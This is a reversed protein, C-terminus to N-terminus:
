EDFDDISTVARGKSMRLQPTTKGRFENVDLLCDCVFLQKPNTQAAQKVQLAFKTDFTLASMGNLNFKISKGSWFNWVTQINPTTTLEEASFCLRFKTQANFDKGFPRISEQFTLIDLLQQHLDPIKSINIYGERDSLSIPLINEPLIREPHEAVLREMEARVEGAVRDFVQRFEAAYKYYISYGAAGEHGGGGSIIHPYREMIRGFIINLPQLDNSRASCSITLDDPINQGDLFNPEFVKQETPLERGFVCTAKKTRESVNAAILGVIGSRTNVFLVNGDKGFHTAPVIQDLVGDRLASKTDNDIMMQHVAQIREAPDPSLIAKFVTTTDGHVRGVANVAPSIYWGILEENTKLPKAQKGKQLQQEDKYEQIGHIIDFLGHFVTDYGQIGTNSVRLYTAPIGRMYGAKRLDVYEKIRQVAKKVMYHNEDLIPMVDSVNAMGAFVILDEILPKALVDYKTAYAMMTKWAVAAGANGKFPYTDGDKNPNVIVSAPALEGNALHHDTVLVPIGLSNAYEVGAQAKSGNDATLIMGVNKYMAIMDDVAKPNLGYGDRRSPPYVRHEIGFVSLGASVVAASNLGDTDYDTDVICLATPNAQQFIKFLHLQDVITNMSDYLYPDHLISADANVFAQLEESTMGTAQETLRIVQLLLNEEM